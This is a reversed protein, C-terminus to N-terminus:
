LEISSPIISPCVLCTIRPPGPDEGSFSTLRPEDRTQTQNCEPLFATITERMVKWDTGCPAYMPTLNSITTSVATGNDNWTASTTGHPMWSQFCTTSDGYVGVSSYLGLLLITFLLSPHMLTVFSGRPWRIRNVTSQM